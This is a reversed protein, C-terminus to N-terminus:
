TEELKEITIRATIRVLKLNDLLEAAQQLKETFEEAVIIGRPNRGERRRLASMYALIQTLMSDDAAGNKVEIAVPTNNKDYALIDIYGVGPLHVQRGILRLGEEIIDLNDAIADELQKKPISQTSSDHLDV